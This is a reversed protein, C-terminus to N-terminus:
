TDLRARSELVEQRDKVLSYWVESAKFLYASIKVFDLAGKYQQAVAHLDLNSGSPKRLKENLDSRLSSAQRIVEPIAKVHVYAAAMELTGSELSAQVEELLDQVKEDGEEIILTLVLDDVPLAPNPYEEVVDTWRSMASSISGTLEEVTQTPTASLIPELVAIAARARKDPNELEHLSWLEAINDCASASYSLSAGLKDIICLAEQFCPYM